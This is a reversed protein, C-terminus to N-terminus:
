DGAARKGGHVHVQWAGSHCQWGECFHLTYGNAASWAGLGMVTDKVEQATVKMAEPRIDM